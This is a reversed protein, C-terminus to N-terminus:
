ETVCQKPIAKLIDTVRAEAIADSAPKKLTTGKWKMQWQRSDENWAVNISIDDDGAQIMLRMLRDDTSGLARATEHAENDAAAFVAVQGNGFDLGLKCVRGENGGFNTARFMRERMGEPETSPMEFLTTFAPESLKDLQKQNSSPIDLRNIVNSTGDVVAESSSKVADSVGGVADGVAKAPAAVVQYIKFLILFVILTIFAIAVWKITNLVSGANKATENATELTQHTKQIISQSNTPPSTEDAKEPNNNNDTM